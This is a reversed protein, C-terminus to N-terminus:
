YLHVHNIAATPGDHVVFDEDGLASLPCNVYPFSM